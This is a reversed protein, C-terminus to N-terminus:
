FNNKYQLLVTFPQLTAVQPEVIGASHRAGATPSPSTPHKPRMTSQATFATISIPVQALSEERKRATVVVTDLTEIDGATSTATVDAAGAGGGYLFAIAAATFAPLGRLTARDSV